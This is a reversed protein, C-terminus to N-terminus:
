SLWIFKPDSIIFNGLYYLANNVYFMEVLSFHVQLSSTDLQHVTKEVILYALGDSLNVASDVPEEPLGM